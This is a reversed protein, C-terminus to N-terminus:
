VVIALLIITFGLNLCILDILFDNVLFVLVLVSFCVSFLENKLENNSFLLLDDFCLDDFCLADVCLDDFCLDVYLALFVEFFSNSRAIDLIIWM